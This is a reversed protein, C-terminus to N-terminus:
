ITNWIRLILILFVCHSGQRQPKWQAHSKQITLITWLRKWLGQCHKDFSMNKMKLEKCGWQKLHSKFTILETIRFIQPMLLLCVCKESPLCKGSDTKVQYRLFCQCIASGRLYNAYSILTGSSDPREFRQLRLSTEREGHSVPSM